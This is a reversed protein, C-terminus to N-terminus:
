CPRQLVRRWLGCLGLGESSGSGSSLSLMLKWRWRWVRWGRRTEPHVLLMLVHRQSVRSCSVSDFMQNLDLCVSSEKSHKLWNRVSDNGPRSLLYLYFSEPTNLHSSVSQVRWDTIDLRIRTWAKYKTCIILIQSTAPTEHIFSIQLKEM